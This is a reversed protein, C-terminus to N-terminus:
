LAVSQGSVVGQSVAVILLKSLHTVFVRQRFDSLLLFVEQPTVPVKTQSTNNLPLSLHVSFNWTSPQDLHELFEFM